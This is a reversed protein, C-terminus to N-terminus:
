RLLNKSLIADALAATFAPTSAADLHVGEPCTFVTLAPIEAYNLCPFGAEQRFVNWYVADPFRASQIDSVPPSSIMRFFLVQGGRQQIKGALAHIEAVRRAFDPGTLSTGKVTYSDRAQEIMLALSAPPVQSFYMRGQRDPDFHFFSPQPLRRSKVLERLVNIVTIDPLFLNTRRALAVHLPAEMRQSLPLNRYGGWVEEWHPDAYAQHPLIECVVSGRFREDDALDQLVALPSGGNVSLQVVQRTPFRDRLTQLDLGMMLRSSGALALVRPGADARERWVSWLNVDDVVSPAFGHRRWFGDWGAALLAACLVAIM